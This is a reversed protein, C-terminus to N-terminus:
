GRGGTSSAQEAADAQMQQLGAHDAANVPTLVEDSTTEIKTAKGRGPTAKGAGGGSVRSKSATPAKGGLAQTTPVVSMESASVIPEVMHKRDLAEVAMGYEACEEDTFPAWQEVDDVRRLIKYGGDPLPAAVGIITLFSAETRTEPNRSGPVVARDQFHKAAGYPAQFYGPTIIYHKSDYTDAYDGEYVVGAAREGPANDVDEGRRKRSGYTRVLRGQEDINNRGRHICLVITEPTLLVEGSSLPQLQQVEFAGKLVNEDM